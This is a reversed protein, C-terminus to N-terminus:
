NLMKELRKKAADITQKNVLTEKFLDGKQKLRKAMTKITFDGIEFKKKKLESWELPASVTAGPKERVSYASAVSKGRANQLHDVYVRGKPRKKPMRELTAIEHNQQTIVSAINKAFEAIADFGYKPKIPIYLHIGYSGSTKAYSELGFDKLIDKAALAVDCAVSLDGEDPDLDLVILDPKELDKAHSLWPNQPIVGLNALYLLAAPNDCLAYNVTHGVDMEIAVTSIFEPHDELNHQFFFPKNIGNPFRKLILPRDKLYPLIYKSTEFYYKLLDGKTFGDKPWYLKDLHTLSVQNGDITVVADGSLSGSNFFQKAPILTTTKSEEKNPKM